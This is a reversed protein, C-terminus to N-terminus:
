ADGRQDFMGIFSSADSSSSGEPLLTRVSVQMNNASDGVSLVALLDTEIDAEADAVITATVDINADGASDPGNFQGPTGEVIYQYSDISDDANIVAAEAADGDTAKGALRYSAALLTGNKNIVNTVKDFASDHAEPSTATATIDVDFIVEVFTLGKGNFAQRRVNDGSHGGAALTQSYAM